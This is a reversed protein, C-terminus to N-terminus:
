PITLTPSTCFPMSASPSLDVRDAVARSLALLEQRDRQWNWLCVNKKKAGGLIAEAQEWTPTTGLLGRGWFATGIPAVEHGHRRRRRRRRGSARPLFRRRRRSRAAGLLRRPPAPEGERGTPAALDSSCPPPGPPGAVGPFSCSGPLSRVHAVLQTWDRAELPRGLLGTARRPVSPPCLGDPVKGGGVSGLRDSGAPTQGWHTCM